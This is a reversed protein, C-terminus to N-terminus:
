RDWHGRGRPEFKFINDVAEKISEETSKPQGTERSSKLQAWKWKRFKPVLKMYGYGTLMGGFHTAVSTTGDQLASIVNIAIIVMVLARANLPIPLPFLFFEREPNLMAYAVMVGMIAGSAGFVSVHVDSFLLPFFTLLVGLMGCILYFRTFQRSGLAREVEPGFFFLWLMNMFLHMLGGHLFMYTLPKWLAGHLFASPQFGLWSIVGGGPPNMGNLAYTLRGFPIDLLLQVAFVVANLLILRQVV